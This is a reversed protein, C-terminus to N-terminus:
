APNGVTKWIGCLKQLQTICLMVIGPSGNTKHLLNEWLGIMFPTLDFVGDFSM